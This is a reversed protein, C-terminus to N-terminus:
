HIKRAACICLGVFHSEAVIHQSNATWLGEYGRHFCRPRSGRKEEPRTPFIIPKKRRIFNIGDNSTALFLRSIYDEKVGEARYIMYVKSKNVITCHNYTCEKEFNNGIPFM